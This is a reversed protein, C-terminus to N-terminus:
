RLKSIDIAKEGESGVFVPFEYTKGDLIIQAKESM